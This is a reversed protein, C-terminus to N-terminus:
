KEGMGFRSGGIGVIGLRGDKWEMGTTYEMRVM